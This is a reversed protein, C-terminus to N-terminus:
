PLHQEAKRDAENIAAEVQQAAAVIKRMSNLPQLYIPQGVYVVSRSFPLVVRFRDWSKMRKERTAAYGLPLIPAGTEAALKVAGFKVKRRPGTPGDPTIAIQGRQQLVRRLQHLAEVGGRTSSGRITRYGIRKLIRAIVEGDFHQSVLAFIGRHRFVWIPVQFNEHWLVLVIGRGSKVLEQYRKWHVVKIAILAFYGYFLPKAVFQALFLIIWQVLKKKM